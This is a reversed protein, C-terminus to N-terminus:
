IADRARNLVWAITVNPGIRKVTTRRRHLVFGGHGPERLVDMDVCPGGARGLRRLRSALASRSPALAGNTESELGVDLVM